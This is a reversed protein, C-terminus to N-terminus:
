SVFPIKFLFFRLIYVMNLINLVSIQQIFIYFAVKSTLPATRGRYPENPTHAVGSLQPFGIETKMYAGCECKDCKISGCWEHTNCVNCLVSTLKEVHKGIAWPHIAGFYKGRQEKVSTIM